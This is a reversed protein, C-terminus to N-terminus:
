NAPQADSPLVAIACCLCAIVFYYYNCFAKSGFAFAAFSTCALSVIFGAPTNRTWRMAAVLAAVAAGISVFISAHGWGARALWSVYSLSDFRFPERAQLLVVSEIFHRPDWLLFPLTVVAGAVLLEIGARLRPRGYVGAYRIILPIALAVYQKSALALGALWPALDPRRRMSWLLGAILAVIIPETWGQELVFFARPTTLWLAAALPATVGATSYGIAAAGAVTAALEVYRYDHCCLEGPIALLLTLPPYPYGFKVLDGELLSPNYYPSRSGYINQFSINYPSRGRVLARVAARHVTAVDIHPDPSASLMWCGLATYLVLLAPFWTRRLRPVLSGAIVLAMAAIGARFLWISADPRVYIGPRILFLLILNVALGLGFAIGQRPYRVSSGPAPRSLLWMGAFASVISITLLALARPEYFGDAIQVALGLLAAAAILCLSAPHSGNPPSASARTM